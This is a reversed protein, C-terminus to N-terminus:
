INWFPKERIFEFLERDYPAFYNRLKVLVNKSIFPHDRGKNEKMCHLKNSNLNKKLCFYGKHTEFVFNEKKFFTTLGLFREMKKIEDYPNRVFNEGNIILIQEKPFYELWRKYSEIYRGRRILNSNIISDDMRLVEEEFLKSVSDYKNPNVKKNM